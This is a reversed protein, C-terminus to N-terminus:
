NFQKWQMLLFSISLDLLYVQLCMKILATQDPDAINAKSDGALPQHHTQTDIYFNSIIQISKKVFKLMNLTLLFRKYVKM